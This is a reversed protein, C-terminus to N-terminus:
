KPPVITAAQAFAQELPPLLPSGRLLAQALQLCAANARDIAAALSPATPTADITVARVWEEPALIEIRRADPFATRGTRLMLEHLLAFNTEALQAHLFRQSARLEGRRLQARVAYADCLFAQALNVVATDDLRPAPSAAILKSVTPEAKLTDKLFRYGGRYILAIEALDRAPRNETRRDQTGFAFLAQVRDLPILVIDLLGDAFLATIKTVSGLRGPRATFVLPEGVGIASLGGPATLAAADSTVIQFDWDSFEDPGGPTGAPRCRSGIQILAHVTPSALAWDIFRTAFHDSSM